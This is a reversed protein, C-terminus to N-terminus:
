NVILSSSIPIIKLVIFLTFSFNNMLFLISIITMYVHFYFIHKMAVRM